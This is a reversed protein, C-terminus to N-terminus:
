KNHNKDRNSLVTFVSSLILDMGVVSTVVTLSDKAGVVCSKSLVMCSRTTVVHPRVSPIVSDFVVM